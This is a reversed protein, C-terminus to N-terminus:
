IALFCGVADGRVGISAFTKGTCQTALMFENKDKDWVLFTGQHDDAVVACIRKLPNVSQIQEITDHLEVEAWYPDILASKMARLGAEVREPSWAIGMSGEPHYYVYEKLQSEVSRRLDQLETEHTM